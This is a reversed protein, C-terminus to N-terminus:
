GDLVVGGAALLEGYAELMCDRLDAPDAVAAPDVFLGLHLSGDYSITTLNFATGAVPGMSITDLVQAGSMYTTFPAARLNSTAFDMKAAQSRAIQTVVSTPLLNALGALGAFAGEGTVNERKAAMRDRIEHLREEPSLDGGPVQVPTPTFANGGIAKDNRTSVVFSINLAEVPADRRDHYLLSGNVAGTVFM